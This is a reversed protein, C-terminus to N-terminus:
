EEDGIAITLPKVPAQGRLRGVQEVPIGAEAAILEAAALGCYRGQCRGMGVRSFAKARNAEKAGTERMVARLDGATVGECRCLVAEDPLAAAQAAPWPFARALGRAFRAYTAVDARLSTMEGKDVPLGLDGLAALAALKGSAEASRAGLIKAGDGALYVGEVSARGDGDREPLWQRTLPDFAFACRALDALQTEPRLHYGMAVADCAIRQEKGGGDRYRIGSVGTDADGVIELPTVGHQVVVGARKLVRTLKVGNWLVSPVAMLDPMAKVRASFPSTDLVAAVQAGAEVYQSAVLYLLPGSGMFVVRHGISVAQSKLAVQSGGLSYAGAYNWGKVPMLRDTAGTCLLLADFPLAAQITQNATWVHRDAINWVLTEPRYDIRDRIADFAGHVAQALNAETGYLKEYPRTFHEPQRRYIQGGDRRGEDIVIPRIGAAVCAQAARTGAPGAGVIIIRPEAM